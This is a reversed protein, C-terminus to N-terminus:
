QPCFIYRRKSSAWSSASTAIRADTATGTSRIEILGCHLVYQMDGQMLRIRQDTVALSDTFANINLGSAPAQLEKVLDENIQLLSRQSMFRSYFPTDQPLCVVCVCVCVHMRVCVPICILSRSCPHRNVAAELVELQSYRDAVSTSRQSFSRGMRVCLQSIFCHGLAYQRRACCVHTSPSPQRFHRSRATCHKHM